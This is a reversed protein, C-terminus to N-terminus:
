SDSRAARWADYDARRSEALPFLGVTSEGAAVREIAFAEVDEQALADRTVEEVLAAPIVVVGEADGVVIDGPEVLVGACTIADDISYPMHQRGYTAAHSSQRYVPVPIAAIAPTDRLAGDTVVGAAGLALLRTVYIDGITGADPVGRAEIVLVDGAEIGEVARRQANMGSGYRGQADERLAVYRLTRARGVMRREPQLPMLGSLFTSRIGRRQLQHALTATSITALQARLEDTLVNPLEDM